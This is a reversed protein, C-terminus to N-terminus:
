AAEERVLYRSGDSRYRAAAGLSELIRNLETTDAESMPEGRRDMVPRPKPTVVVQPAPLARRSTIYQGYALADDRIECTRPFFPKSKAWRIAVVELWEPPIDACDEAVLAVRAAHADRDVTNAPPYRLGLKGIIELTKASPLPPRESSPSPQTPGLDAWASTIEGIRVPGHNNM